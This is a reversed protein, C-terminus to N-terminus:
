NSMGALDARAGYLKGQSYVQRGALITALVRGKLTRGLFPSNISKSLVSEADLQWTADPDVVVLDAVGGRQLTGYPLGLARCPGATLRDVVDLLPMAGSRWLDLSLPLSTQLGIVGNAAESFAVDKEISSHPAHDTAIADLTGDRLGEIVALRDREERLPPNMKAATRYGEVAEDTLVFHHPTAEGTVRVGRAKARRILDVAAETSVHCVHLHGGTYEALMIDRAVAADESVRPVGRIGLRTSVAGEHMHCNRSLTPEEAHTLVPLGFDRSYELASRMLGGDAVPHGDDTLAVVGARRMEGYPALAQGKQGATVAGAPLVRCLGVAEGRQWIYHVLEGNDIVPRTNPMAVMSTFGGAAAAASGSAIDEKYEEGPERLHVHVDVLGPLIWRDTADIAVDATAEGLAGAAAIEAVKGDVVRVDALRDTRSQPDLLRGNRVIVKL